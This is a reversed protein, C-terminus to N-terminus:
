AVFRPKQALDGLADQVPVLVDAILNVEDSLFSSTGSWPHEVLLSAVLVSACVGESIMFIGVM